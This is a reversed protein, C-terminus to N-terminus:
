RDDLTKLFKVLLVEEAPTLGLNGLEDVNVNRAVEPPPWCTTGFRPDSPGVGAPCTPLVDRTNYFHVVQELTKFVGNHMYSKAALPHPRKEINRLTPVKIAGDFGPDRLFGGIGLDVFGNRLLAPNEPNAPVGLNDYTFDTFLARKGALPHCAACNGKDVRVFIEMGQMEERTLRATGNRADDFRSTFPSVRPSKEYAAISLGIRDYEVLMQQRDSPSLPVVSGETSCLSRMAQRPPFAIRFISAGWAARYLAAYKGERVGFVVCAPDPLGMEDPNVFPGIAQEATPSGLRAGTARGDHFNGGVWVEDEENYALVPSFAAYAASPPRRNGFRGPISGEMVSGGLNIASNPSTFGFDPDHCSQCAQNRRISLTTDEFIRDGLAIMHNSSLAVGPQVALLPPEVNLPDTAPADCAAILCTLLVAASRRVRPIALPVPPEANPPPDPSRRLVRVLICWKAEHSPGCTRRPASAIRLGGDAAAM